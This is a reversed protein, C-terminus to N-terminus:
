KSDEGLFRKLVQFIGYIAAGLGCLFGLAILLGGTEYHKDLWRGAFVGVVISGIFYSSITSVLAMKRVIPRLRPEQPM